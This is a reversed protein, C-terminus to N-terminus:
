ASTLHKLKDPNRMSYITRIRNAEMEFAVTQVSGDPSYAILGPLGNVPGFRLTTGEPLGKPGVSIIFHAIRDAGDIVSAAQVKGGGDAVLRADEALMSMLADLDGSRAADVFALVLEEHRTTGDDARDRAASKDPPRAERVHM